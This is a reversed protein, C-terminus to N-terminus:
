LTARVTGKVPNHESLPKRSQKKTLTERVETRKASTQPGRPKKNEKTRGGVTYTLRRQSVCVFGKDVIAM